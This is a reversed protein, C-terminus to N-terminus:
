KLYRMQQLSRAFASSRQAVRVDSRTVSLLHNRKRVLILELKLEKKVARPVLLLANLTAERKRFIQMQAGREGKRRYKAYFTQVLYKIKLMDCDFLSILLRDQLLESKQIIINRGDSTGTLKICGQTDKKLQCIYMFWHEEFTCLDTSSPVPFNDSLSM